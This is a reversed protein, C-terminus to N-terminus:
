IWKWDYIEGASFCSIGEKPYHIISLEKKKGSRDTVIRFTELRYLTLNVDVVTEKRIGGRGKFRLISGKPIKELEIPEETLTIINTM